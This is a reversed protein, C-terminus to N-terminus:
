CENDLRRALRNARKSFVKHIRKLYDVSFKRVQHNAELAEVKQRGIRAILGVRLAAINGGLYQNCKVCAAAVNHLHFRLHPSSGVSRYHSCDMTGGFKQQPMAGCSACPLGADRVRVYRNFTNQAKKTWDSRTMLRERAAKTERRRQKQAKAQAKAKGLEIACPISCAAQFPVPKPILEGCNKCPRPKM